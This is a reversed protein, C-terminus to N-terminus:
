WRKWGIGLEDGVIVRWVVWRGSRGNRRGM